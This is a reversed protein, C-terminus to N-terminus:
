RYPLSIVEPKKRSVTNAISDLTLDFILTNKYAYDFHVLHWPFWSWLNLSLKAPLVFLPGYNWVVQKSVIYYDDKEDWRMLTEESSTYLFVDLISALFVRITFYIFDCSVSALMTPQLFTKIFSHRFFTHSQNRVATVALESMVLKNEKIFLFEYDHQWPAYNM